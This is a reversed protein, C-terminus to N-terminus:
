LSEKWEGTYRKYDCECFYEMISEIEIIPIGDMSTTAKAYWDKRFEEYTKIKHLERAQRLIEVAQERRNVIDMMQELNSKVLYEKWDEAFDCNDGCGKFMPAIDEDLNGALGCGVRTVFFEYEPHDKTYQVFEEVQPKIEELSLCNFQADKTAIAYSRGIPGKGIGPVAGYYLRAAQAAGAGHIGALNSGFVFIQTVNPKSGDIHFKM